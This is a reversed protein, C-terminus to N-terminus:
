FIKPNFNDPNKPTIDRYFEEILTMDHEVSDTLKIIPGIGIIKKKYDAYGLCVPKNAKKAIRYFGTKWKEVRKRTGEPAIAIVANKKSNLYTNIDEILSSNDIGEGRKVGIAGLWKFLFGFFSKTYYEKILFKTKIGTRWIFFLGIPMDWNSTHPAGIIIGNANKINKFDVKWGLLFLGIAGICKKM